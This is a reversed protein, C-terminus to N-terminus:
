FLALFTAESKEETDELEIMQQYSNRNEITEQDNCSLKKALKPRPHSM